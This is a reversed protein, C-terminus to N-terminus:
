RSTLGTDNTLEIVPLVANSAAVGRSVVHDVVALDGVGFTSTADESWWRGLELAILSGSWSATEGNTIVSLDLVVARRFEVCARGGVPLVVDIGNWDGALVLANRNPQCGASATCSWGLSWRWGLPWRWWFSRWVLFRGWWLAWRWILAWGWVLSRRWVLAWPLAARSVQVAVVLVWVQDNRHGLAIWVLCVSIRIVSLDGGVDGGDEVEVDWRGVGSSAGQDEEEWLLGM